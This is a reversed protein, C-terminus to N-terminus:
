LPLCEALEIAEKTLLRVKSASSKKRRKEHNGEAYIVTGQWSCRGNKNNTAARAPQVLWSKLTLVM